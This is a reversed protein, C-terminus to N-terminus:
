LLVRKLTILFFYRWFTWNASEESNDWTSRISIISKISSDFYTISCAHFTLFLGNKGYLMGPGLPLHKEYHQLENMHFDKHDHKAKCLHGVTQIQVTCFSLQFYHQKGQCQDLKPFLLHLNWQVFSHNDM